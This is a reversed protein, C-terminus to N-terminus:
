LFLLFFSKPLCLIIFDTLVFSIADIKIQERKCRNQDPTIAIEFETRVAPFSAIVMICSVPLLLGFLDIGRNLLNLLRHIRETFDCHTIKVIIREPLAFIIRICVGLRYLLRHKIKCVM